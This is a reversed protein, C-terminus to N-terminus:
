IGYMECTSTGFLKIIKLRLEDINTIIASILNESNDYVKVIGIGEMIQFVWKLTPNRIPKGVQNPIAENADQLAQRLKHQAFNYVLLSLTMVMMLAAIRGPKKVYFSDIMFWPDKLFKFGSEVCQQDKYEALIALASLKDDLNNTAIIFRGKKLLQRTISEDNKSITINIQYGALEKAVGSQPRGRKNYKEVAIIKAMLSLYKYKKQLEKVKSDADKECNFVQNSLHWCDKEAQATQKELQREFTSKERTYAQESSVIIWRQRINGYISCVEACSYGNSGSEWNFSKNELELLASCDKINEPVRSVWLMNNHSLLKDATYLASDAIWIFSHNLKIQDQFLRVNNITEHFSAKDSSNGSLPEMWIPINAEGSMSLSLMVQKLDPRHDKSYGHVVEIVSADDPSSGVAADPKTAYDGQLVFSTSDLHAYKGLLNHELAIEFVTEGYLKTVGYSSIEDLCKGLCHDDLDQAQVGAGLLHEVAKSQYFQPTLYLRRNTFGLANIIMAVTAIGPQIVRRPDNSGIKSNIREAIRLDACVSAIIGHHDMVETQVTKGVAQLKM